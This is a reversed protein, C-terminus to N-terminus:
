GRLILVALVVEGLQELADHASAYDPLGVLAHPTLRQEAPVVCGILTRVTRLASLRLLELGGVSQHYILEVRVSELALVM